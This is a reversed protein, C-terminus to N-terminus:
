YGFWTFFGDGRYQFGPTKVVPGGPLGKIKKMMGPSYSRTYNNGRTTEGRAKGIQPSILSTSPRVKALCGM